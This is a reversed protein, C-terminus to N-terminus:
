EVSLLECGSMEVFLGELGRCRGELTVTQGIKAIQSRASSAASSGTLVMGNQTTFVAAYREPPTVVCVVRMQRDAARLLMHYNRTLMPKDFGIIEGQLRFTQKRYRADAAAADTRYHSSLDLASV